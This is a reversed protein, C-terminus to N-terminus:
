GAVDDEYLTEATAVLEPYRTVFLTVWRWDVFPRGMIQEFPSGILPSGDDDVWGDSVEALMEFKTSLTDIIKLWAPNTLPLMALSEVAARAILEDRNSLAAEADALREKMNAMKHEKTEARRSASARSRLFGELM